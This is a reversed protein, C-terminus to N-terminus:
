KRVRRSSRARTLDLKPPGAVVTTSAKHRLRRDILHAAFIAASRVSARRYAGKTKDDTAAKKKDAYDSIGRIVLGNIAQAGERPRFAAFLGKAEMEVTRLKANGTSERLQSFFNASKVVFNGSALQESNNIHLDPLSKPLGLLELESVSADLAVQRWNKYDKDDGRLASASDFLSFSPQNQTPRFLYKISKDKNELAEGVEYGFVKGPIIVDGLSLGKNVLAGAIGILITNVPEWTRLAHSAFAAAWSQGMDRMSSTVVLAERGSDHVHRGKYFTGYLEPVESLTDPWVERLANFEEDLPTLILYDVLPIPASGWM